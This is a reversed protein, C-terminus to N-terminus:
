NGSLVKSCVTAYDNALKEWDLHDLAYQRGRKGMEDREIAPMLCFQQLASELQEANYPEVSIGAGAEQVPDNGACVAHLVPRASMFYDGIKNPSIGYQYINKKHWGIFCCDAQKIANIVQPKTVQPLFTIFDLHEVEARALLAAKETGEGIFVFHYSARTNKRVKGLDLVQGLANPVGHSGTYIIINKNQKRLEDFVSQHNAPLLEVPHRWEERSVGNPVYFFKDRKLGLPVMHKYAKPFLSVVADSRSYARREINRLWLILPHWRSIGALEILSLPWIDRVEYILKADFQKSLNYAPPFTFPHVCSPILIDPQKLIGAKVKKYLRKVANAFALMNKIRAFGNGSYCGTKLHVYKVGDYLSCSGTQNEPHPENRLHHWSACIVTMDHGMDEFNKALHYARGPFGFGPPVSYHNLYWIRM